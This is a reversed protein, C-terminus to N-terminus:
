DWSFCKEILAIKKWDKNELYQFAFQFQDIILYKKLNFSSAISIFSKEEAWWFSLKGHPNM